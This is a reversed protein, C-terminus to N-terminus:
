NQIKLYALVILIIIGIGILIAVLIIGFNISCEEKYSRTNFKIPEKNKIIELEKTSDANSNLLDDNDIHIQKIIQTKDEIDDNGRQLLSIDLLRTEEDLFSQYSEEDAYDNNNGLEKNNEDVIFGCNPCEFVDYPIDNNCKLCKM